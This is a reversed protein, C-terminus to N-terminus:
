DTTAAVRKRVGSKETDNDQTEKTEKGEKDDEENHEEGPGEESEKKSPLTPIQPSQIVSPGGLVFDSILVIGMGLILGTLVTAVGFITYSAWVPLGYTVTLLEHLDKLLLSLKFVLGLCGMLFSSPSKWWPLPEVERWKQDRIFDTFGQLSRRGDYKRFEGDKVHFITPLSFIMFRGSLVPEKTTDVEAVNIGLTDAELALNSWVPAVHQCAPCWPAFFKIMWEGELMRDWNEYNLQQNEGALCAPIYLIILVVFSHAIRAAMKSAM